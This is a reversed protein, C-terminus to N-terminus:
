IDGLNALLTRGGFNGALLNINGSLDTPIQTSVLNIAGGTTYPGYKVQSSGKVVEVAQMRGVTPFYYAAPAAYPAPAMLIGDEMVTIKSSREVGTGRMGINPRLGFGDEEQINIGPVTRLTRNIDNYGFRQLEKPSIYYASGPIDKVGMNGGTMIARNVVVGPLSIVAEDLSVDVLVTQGQEVLVEQRYKEFGVNSTILTYSGAPVDSIAFSGSSNTATGLKTKDLYVHVGSLPRDIGSQIIKGQIKGTQALLSTELLLGLLVTFFVRM